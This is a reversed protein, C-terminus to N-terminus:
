ENNQEMIVKFSMELIENLRDFDGKLYLYGIVAEFGSSQLYDNLNSNKSKSHYKFNRGRKYIENEEITLFSNIEKMILSHSKASVYRQKEKNLVNSKTINLSLLRERVKLEYYADGIYALNSGNCMTIDIM